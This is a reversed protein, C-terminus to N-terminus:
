VPEAEDGSWDAHSSGDMSGQTFPSAGEARPRVGLRFRFSLETRHAQAFCRVDPFGNDSGGPPAARWSGLIEQAPLAGCRAARSCTPTHRIRQGGLALGEQRREDPPTVLERDEQHLKEVLAEQAAKEKQRDRRGGASRYIHFAGPADNLPKRDRGHIERCCCSDRSDRDFGGLRHRCDRTRSGVKHDLSCVFGVPCSATIVTMTIWFWARRRLKWKVAIAFALMGVGNLTPLAIGLSGFHNFPWYTPLSGIIVLLVGWWPLRIKKAAKIDGKVDNALLM